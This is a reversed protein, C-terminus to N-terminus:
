VIFLFVVPVEETLKVLLGCLNHRIITYQIINYYATNYYMIYTYIYIYTCVYM